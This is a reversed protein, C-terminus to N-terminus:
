VFLLKTIRYRVERVVRKMEWDVVQLEACRYNWGRKAGPDSDDYVGLTLLLLPVGVLRISPVRIVPAFRM